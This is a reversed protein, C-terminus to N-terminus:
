KFITIMPKFSMAAFPGPVGVKAAHFKLWTKRFHRMEVIKEFLMRSGARQFEPINSKRISRSAPKKAIIYDAASLIFPHKIGTVKRSV